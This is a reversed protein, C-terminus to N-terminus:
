YDDDDDYTQSGGNWHMAGNAALLRGLPRDLALKTADKMSRNHYSLDNKM